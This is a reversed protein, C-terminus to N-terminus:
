TATANTSLRGVQTKLPHTASCAVASTHPAFMLRMGSSCVSLLAVASHLDSPPPALPAIELLPQRTVACLLSFGTKKAYKRALRPGVVHSLRALPLGALCRGCRSSTRDLLGLQSATSLLVLTSRLPLWLTQRPMWVQVTSLCPLRDLSSSRPRETMMMQESSQLVDLARTRTRTCALCLFLFLSSM